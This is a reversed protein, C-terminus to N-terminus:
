GILNSINPKLLFLSLEKLKEEYYLHKLGRNMKTARRQVQELLEAERRYQPGWAQVCCELHPRVLAPYLPGQIRSGLGIFDVM